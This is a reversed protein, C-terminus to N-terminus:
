PVVPLARLLEQQEEESFMRRAIREARARGSLQRDVRECDIGVKAGAAVAVGVLGDTHTINFDFERIRRPLGQTDLLPKGFEGISFKFDQTIPAARENGIALMHQELAISSPAVVHCPMVSHLAVCRTMRTPPPALHVYCSMLWVGPGFWAGRLAPLEAGVAAMRHGLMHCSGLTATSKLVPSFTRRSHRQIRM